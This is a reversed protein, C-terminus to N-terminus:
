RFCVTFLMFHLKANVEKEKERETERERDRVRRRESFVCM